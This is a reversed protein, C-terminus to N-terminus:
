RPEKGFVRVYEERGGAALASAQRIWDDREIRGKFQLYDDVWAIEEATWESIQGFTWVGLGNLVQELKPGVGSIMKLDDPSEPKEIEAPRRFDEPELHATLSEARKEAEAVATDTAERAAAAADSADSKIKEVTANAKAPVPKAPEMPVVDAGTEITAKAKAATRTAAKKAPETVPVPPFAMGASRMSTEMMGQFLGLMTGTMHTAAAMSFSAAMVAVGASQVTMPALGAADGDKMWATMASANKMMTDSGLDTPISFISM